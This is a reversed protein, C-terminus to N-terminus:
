DDIKTMKILGSTLEMRITEWVDLMTTLIKREDTELACQPALVYFMAEIRNCVITAGDMAVSGVETRILLEGQLKKREIESKILTEQDIAHKYALEALGSRNASYHISNNKDDKEAKRRETHSEYDPNATDKILEISEEVNVQDGEMVLRGADGLQTVYGPVCEIHRAFESKTMTTM